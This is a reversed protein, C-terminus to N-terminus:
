FSDAIHRGVRNFFGATAVGANKSGRGIAVGADAAANWPSRAPAEDAAPRTDAQTEPQHDLAVPVLPVATPAPELRMIPVFTNSSVEGASDTSEAGEPGGATPQGAPASEVRPSSQRSGAPRASASTAAQVVPQQANDYAPDQGTSGAFLEEIVNPPADEGSAVAPGAAANPSVVASEVLQFGGVTVSLAGLLAIVATAAGRSWSPTAFDRRSVIRVIRGRLGAPTLVGPAPLPESSGLPLNALKVLCAAYSKPSGTISVTAEDCAVEREIRLRRDIWWVAPHWGAAARVILQLLNALDDRRQVHAWEHIVVRDLDDADLHGVLAPAVAIVPSRCGLVAAANVRDSVVLVAQRGRDRIRLWHRLSQEVPTPFIRSRRKARRLALMAGALRIAYVGAWLAWATVLVASSTWWAHPIPVIPGAAASAAMDPPTVVATLIPVLPLAFVILLAIWCVVYRVHARSRELLQLSLALALVVVGGQWLWNLVADV